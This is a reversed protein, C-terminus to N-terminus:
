GTTRGSILNVLVLWCTAIQWQSFKLQSAGLNKFQEVHLVLVDTKDFWMLKAHAMHMSWPSQLMTGGGLCAVLM